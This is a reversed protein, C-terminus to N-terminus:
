RVGSTAKSGTRALHPHREFYTHAQPGGVPKGIRAKMAKAVPKSDICSLVELLLRTEDDFRARLTGKLNELLLSTADEGFRALLTPAVAALLEPIQQVLFSVAATAVELSHCAKLNQLLKQAVPDGAQMYTDPAELITKADETGWPEDAFVSALVARVSADDPMAHAERWRVAQAHAEIYEAEPAASVVAAVADWHWMDLWAVAIEKGAFLNSSPDGGTKAKGMARLTGAAGLGHSVWAVAAHPSNPYRLVNVRDLIKAGEEVDACPRGSSFRAALNVDDVVVRTLHAAADDFSLVAAPQSRRPHTRARVADTVHLPM